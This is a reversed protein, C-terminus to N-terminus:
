NSARIRYFRKPPADFPASFYATNGNVSVGGPANQWVTDSLDDKYQVQYTRGATAPWSLVVNNSAVVLSIAADFVSAASTPITGAIYEQLNTMGDGDADDQSRSLDGAQGTPHGFYEMTWADAIGDGDSDPSVAVVAVFVDSVRNLDSAVLGSNWSQFVVTGGSVSIMPRAWSTWGPQSTTIALLANTGWFRDFLFLNPPNSIGPVIDTAFSRYVVFRGDGSLTPVESPGNASGTMSSNVSVLTRAGGNQLDCLYVDNTGNTDEPLYSSATVFAFFRGNTSWPNVSRIPVASLLSLVNSNETLSLVSLSTSIRYLVHSGDPSIAASTIMGVNTYINGGLQTDWVRLQFSANFHAVRRGDSSMSPPLSAVTNGLLSTTSGSDMDRWFTNPGAGSLGAALNRARSLFAVYRGDYSIVPFSADNDGASAGNPAISVMETAATQLDRRFLNLYRNTRGAVLNTASSLFVVFRGNGSIVPNASFGGRAPLGNTGVSVLINTGSVRDHVFIDPAHNTDNPVLDDAHSSFAVRRGDASISYQWLASIGSTTQSVAGQARQSILETSNGLSDRVFVDLADNDDKSLLRGDGAAFAVYRGDVSLVPLTGEVDTSGVNNTDVDVLSTTSTQTDRVYIHYGNSIANSVLNTANSVFAVFRADSSVAPSHSLSNTVVLGNLDASILVNTGTQTDWLRVSSNTTNGLIEKEGYAIFRGDPTMVPGFVDDNQMWPAFSNSSVITTLGITADFRLILTAAVGMGGPSTLGNTWGVKFAVVTGDDSLAPGSSPANNLRLLYSAIVSANTSAWETTDALLDRLYVNGVPNAPIGPALGRANSVFAVYRGDPTIRPTAMFTATSLATNSTAGASARVTFSTVLDRVFVDPIRNTDGAVLNTAGSVFAVYRGDPTMVADSSAGDGVVGNTAVSVLMTTQTLLDRVFVDSVGNTDDAVLDTAASEFLVFRGSASAHGSTSSGNGGSGNLNPSVLFTEGSQRDHLFVDLGFHGNDNTVLDNASSSFVVFRGDSSIWPATSNGNAVVPQAVSAGRFSVLEPNGVDAELVSSSVLCGSFIWLWALERLSRRPNMLCHRWSSM